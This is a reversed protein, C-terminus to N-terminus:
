RDPFWDSEPENFRARINLDVPLVTNKGTKALFHM